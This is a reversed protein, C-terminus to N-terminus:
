RHARSFILVINQGKSLESFKVETGSENTLTFDPAKGGVKVADPAKGDAVAPSCLLAMAAIMTKINMM